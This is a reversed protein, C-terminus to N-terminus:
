CTTRLLHINQKVESWLSLTKGDPSFIPIVMYSSAISFNAVERGTAVNWLKAQSDWGLGGGAFTKAAVTVTTLPPLTMM